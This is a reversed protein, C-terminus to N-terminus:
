GHLIEVQTVVVASHVFIYVVHVGCCGCISVYSVEFFFICRCYLRKVLAVVVCSDERLADEGKLKNSCLPGQSITFCQLLTCYLHNFSKSIIVHNFVKFCDRQGMGCHRWSSKVNLIM